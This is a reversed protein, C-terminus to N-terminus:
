RKLASLLTVQILESLAELGASAGRARWGDIEKIPQDARL